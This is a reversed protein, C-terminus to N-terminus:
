GDTAPPITIGDRVLREVYQGFRQVPTEAPAPAEFKLTVDGELELELEDPCITLTVQVLEGARNSLQVGNCHMSLDQGNLIVKGAGMRDLKIKLDAM